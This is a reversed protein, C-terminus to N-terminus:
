NHLLEVSRSRVSRAIMASRGELSAARRMAADARQRLQAAAARWLAALKRHYDAARALDNRNEHLVALRDYARALEFADMEARFLHARGPSDSDYVAVGLTRLRGAMEQAVRAVDLSWENSIGEDPTM